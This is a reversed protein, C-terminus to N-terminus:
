LPTKAPIGPLRPYKKPTACNKLCIVATRQGLPGQSEVSCLELISAGLLKIAKEASKVEEQPDYGKAAVFLGGVRVLPLCYEALIRMEAVARAVAVDFSERFELCQGANEARERLIEVNSLGILDVVHELYLCRKQMSELLTIKWSPCAIAFILGPLGAGSGVDVLNLSPADEDDDARSRCHSAYSRKLPSILALSDEVHRTMVEGEETVATLNMRQNWQLLTRVYLSIQDTQAPTLTLTQPNSSSFSAAAAAATVTRARPIKSLNFFPFHLVAASSAMQKCWLSM